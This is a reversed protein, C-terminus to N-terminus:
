KYIKRKNLARQYKKANINHQRLNTAFNHYGSFDEKACFFMYKHQKHNLVADISSIEPITIPGPPLGKYKYTNYPSDISLYEKRVRKISFDGMAYIITPDAQLPWGKKLRNLYVGAVVPKEDNKVTEMQVISALTSVQSQSLGLKKAKAKREATWFKKYETAMRKFLEKEKTNWYLEYTNPIFMSIITNKNFGYKSIFEKDQLLQVFIASDAEINKTIRGALQPITRVNNFSINVPEQVGSRLLDVIDNNSMNERLKYRGSKVKNIYHKKEAVWKFTSIDKVIEQNKLISVVDDFDSGTPIYIYEKNKDFIINPNYIKNYILYAYIGGVTLVLVIVLYILKKM